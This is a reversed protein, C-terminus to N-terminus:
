GVSDLSVISTTIAFAGAALIMGIAAQMLITKAKSVNDEKGAATVYLYGAYIMFIFAFTGITGAAFNTVQIMLTKANSFGLKTGQEQFLIGKIVFESVAIVFLGGLSWQIQRKAVQIQDESASAAVYRMGATVLMFVAVAGIIVEVLNYIGALFSSAQNGYQAAGSTGERFIDGEIGFAVSRVVADAIFIVMLGELAYRIYNKSATEVESNDRGAAVMRVGMVVMFLVAVPTVILKFFDLFTFIAATIGRIGDEGYASTKDSDQYNPLEIAEVDEEGEGKTANIEAGVEKSQETISEGFTEFSDKFSAAHVPGMLTFYLVFVSIYAFIKKM